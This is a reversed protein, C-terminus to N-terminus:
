KPPDSELFVSLLYNKQAKKLIEIVYKRNEPFFWQAIAKQLRVERGKPVYIKEGTNFDRGTYYICSSITMPTPTFEQIQKLKLNNEKLYLALDIADNISTGPHGVMIYPTLIYKLSCSQSYQGFLKLYEQYTSFSPKNMLRLVKDSKHEPAIKLRGGTHNKVLLEIFKKNKLALDTRVGSAVYVNNIRPLNSIEELLKIYRRHSTDLKECIVPYICSNRRCELDRCEMGYMNASPGGIDSITGHFYDQKKLIETERLISQKSRSQIYKGQHYNLSCFNCGGFCGRHSTISTKIQEFAPIHKNKYIPHPKRSFPLAYIADIEEESLPEEPRNHKLYRKGSKQYLTQFRNERHFIKNMELFVDPQDVLEHDPLTIAEAPLESVTTVTGPIDNLERISIGTDLIKAVKLVTKEAMGYILLDAKSDLLVSNRVKDSWFDYHPIRRLSAEIGGLIVPVGKFLQKLRQTYVLTARDPRLGTKGEPSYADESRIKRQATYHNVMSDLNGATVGFFLRPKGLRLFDHDSKWDPQAIVGVRFGNAVLCRGIIATGFAPHDIYADGTVIIIDLEVWGLQSCEETTVPLFKLENVSSYWRNNM